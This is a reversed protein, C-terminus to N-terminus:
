TKFRAATALLDHALRALDTSAQRLEAASRATGRTVGAVSAIHSAIEGSAGAAESVSGSIHQSAGTQTQVARAITTQLEQIESVIGLIEQIAQEAVETDTQIAEVRSGIDETAKATEKALEKVENAVIAFSKGAEGARAAEITANLALLNTQSAITTIAQLVKGIEVGSEGLRAMVAHTRSAVEVASTAVRTAQASSRSVERISAGIEEVSNAVTHVNSSVLEASQSASQAQNSVTEVETGVRESVAALQSASSGLTHASQRITMVVAATNDLCRNLSRCLGAIEDHGTVTARTSYDGASAMDLAHVASALPTLISRTVMVAGLTLALGALLGVALRVLTATQLMERISLLELSRERALQAALRDLADGLAEHEEEFAALAAKAGKPDAAALQVITRADFGHVELLGALEETAARAGASQKLLELLRDSHALMDQQALERQEPSSALMARMVDARLEDHLHNAELQAEVVLNKQDIRELHDLVHERTILGLGLALAVLGGFVVLLGYLRTRISFWALGGPRALHVERVLSDLLRPRKSPQAM